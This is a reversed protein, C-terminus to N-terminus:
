RGRGSAKKRNAARRARRRSRRNGQRGVGESAEQAQSGPDTAQEGHDSEVGTGNELSATIQDVVDLQADAAYADFLRRDREIFALAEDRDDYSHRKGAWDIVIWPPGDTSIQWQHRTGESEVPEM